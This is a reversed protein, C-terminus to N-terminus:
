KSFNRGLEQYLGVSHAIGLEQAHTLLHKLDESTRWLTFKVYSPFVETKYHCCLSIDKFDATIDTAQWIEEFEAGSPTLLIECATKAAELWIERDKWKEIHEELARHPPCPPLLVPCQFDDALPESVVIPCTLTDLLCQTLNQIQSCPERQFDLLVASCHLETVARTLQEVIVDPSHKYIPTIDNVMLLSNEPLYDPFNSLGTTYASFHCAMWAINYPVEDLAEMEAGTIALYPTIAMSLDRRGHYLEEM